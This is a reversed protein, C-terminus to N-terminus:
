KKLANYYSDVLKKYYDKLDPNSTKFIELESQRRKLYEELAPPRRVPQERAADAKRKNEYERERMSKDAELLRTLIDQQRKLTENTLRKNVLDTEIKDMQDLIQQVEKSGQGRKKQAEDLERLAKRLAAQQAAMQAFEKSSASKGNKDSQQKMSELDKNLKQQGEGIKDMPVAGPKPKGGPKPNNGGPKDCMQNGPKMGSLQQQMKQMSESLMLALDNAGKMTRQQESLAVPIQREELNNLAQKMNFKVEALKDTIFSEVQIQRKSLAVLSDEIIQFDDKLKYQQQVLKTYRPTNVEVKGVDTILGEQAFSLTVLNELLQRIAKIDEELQEQEGSQMDKNMSQAMDKMKQAASKQSKAAKSNQSQNLEKKSDQLDKQIDNMKEGPDGINKPKELEKNKKEIEDMKKDLEKFKENVDDQKEKLQDQPMQNKETQEALKEQEKALADLKELQEKIDNELELEKFMEELKDLRMESQEQNKDMSKMMDLAEDKNLKQMMEEIKKMLEKMEDSMADKIMEEIKDEKEKTEPDKEKNMEEDNRLNEQFKENAKQMIQDLEKQRDMLKELEKRTQWDIEKQQLLKERIKKLEEQIKKSEKLAKEIDNKIEDNNKDINKELQDISAMSYTMIATRASKSGNVADNDFVEFYYSVEQGPKLELKRIDFNYDFDAQKPNTIPLKARMLAGERGKEDKIKYNFTLSSLGYDDSADGAFFIVGQSTSDQFPQASITPYLDPVVTINYTVSDAKPLLKNSIFIKYSQDKLIKKSYNYSSEGDKRISIAKAIDPFMFSVDDTNQTNFRWSINTGAPVILDGTNKLVEDSKGLYSPYDLAIEFSSINPKEIVDLTYTESGFGGSTLHFNVDKQVNAFTYSFNNASDKLLQYRYGNIDIFIENPIVKGQTSVNLKYDQYQVAKLNGKNVIFSFPAPKAYEKDNNILRKTSESIISPAAVLIALLLVVPPLAYRLYKRNQALDIAAKFPIPKIEETKQNISAVILSADDLQNEAQKRLQLINLLKDKVTTFHSGIIQAAQEHSIVKGLRFYRMAPILVWFTTSAISTLLFSYFLSKRAATSFYFQYESLSFVLFMALILGVSYLAGRILQNIYFKRIFGDLREILLHYNDKAM